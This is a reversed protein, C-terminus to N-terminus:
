KRNDPDTLNVLVRGIALRVDSSNYEVDATEQIDTAVDNVINEAIQQAYERETITELEDFIENTLADTDLAPRRVMENLRKIHAM